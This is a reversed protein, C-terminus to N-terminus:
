KEGGEREGEGNRDYREKEKIEEGQGRGEKKRMSVAGGRKEDKKTNLM